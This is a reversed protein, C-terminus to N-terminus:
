KGAGHIRPFFMKAAGAAGTAKALEVGVFPLFGLIFGKAINGIYIGLYLSGISLILLAGLVSAAFASFWSYERKRFMWSILPPVVLFALLYGGTAGLIYTIGANEGAFVPIGILGMFIYLGTAVSAWHRRLYLSATFIFFTQLTFPVPTLPTYIRIKAGLAILSAFFLSAVLNKVVDMNEWLNLFQIRYRNVNEWLQMTPSYASAIFINQTNVARKARQEQVWAGIKM